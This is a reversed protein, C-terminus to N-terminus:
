RRLSTAPPSVYVSSSSPLTARPLLPFIVPIVPMVIRGLAKIAGSDSMTMKASASRFGRTKFLNYRHMTYPSPRLFFITNKDAIPRGGPSKRRRRLRNVSFTEMIRVSYYAFFDYRKRTLYSRPSKIAKVVSITRAERTECRVPHKLM